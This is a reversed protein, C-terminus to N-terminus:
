CGNINQAIKEIHKPSSGCCGGLYKVRIDSHIKLLEEVFSDVNKEYEGNSNPIGANPMLSLNFNTNEKLYLLATKILEIDSVCNLGISELSYDKIKNCFEQCSIGCILEPKFVVVSVMIPIQIASKTLVLKCAKLALELNEYTYFSELLILDVGSEVLHKIQDAFVRFLEEECIYNEKTRFTSGTIKNTPSVSGAIKIKRNSCKRAKHAIQVSKEVILHSYDQLNFRKLSYPNASFSNTKIIDAGANIYNTHMREVLKPNSLNLYEPCFKNFDKARKMQALETSIAGDFLLSNEKKLM